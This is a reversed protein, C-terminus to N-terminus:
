SHYMQTSAVVIFIGLIILLDKFINIGNKINVVYLAYPISYFGKWRLSLLPYSKIFILNVRDEIPNLISNCLYMTNEQIIQLYRM